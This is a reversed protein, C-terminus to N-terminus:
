SARRASLAHAEAGYLQWVEAPSLARGYTRVDDIAGLFMDTPQYDGVGAGVTFAGGPAPIGTVREVDEPVGDVYVSTTQTSADYVGTVYHWSHPRPGHRGRRDNM